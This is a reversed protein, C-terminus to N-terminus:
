ELRFLLSYFKIKVVYKTYVYTGGTVFLLETNINGNFSLMYYEVFFNVAVFSPVWVLM